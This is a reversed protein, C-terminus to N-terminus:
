RQGKSAVSKPAGSKHLFWERYRLDWNTREGVTRWKKDMNIRRQVHWVAVQRGRYLLTLKADIWGNSYEFCERGIITDGVNIGIQRCQTAPYYSKPRPLKKM